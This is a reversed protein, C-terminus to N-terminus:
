SCRNDSFMWYMKESSISFGLKKQLALSRENDCEVQLFPTRGSKVLRDSLFSELAFGVGRRRFEPLVTLLGMSGELHTGIFGAIVGGFYGGFIDGRELHLEIEDRPLIGYNEMVFDAKDPYMLRIDLGIRNEGFLHGDMNAAQYCIMWEIPSFKRAAYDKIFSQHAAFIECPPCEDVLMRGTKEDSVALMYVNGPLEHLLVGDKEAYFIAASGRKVADAMGVYLLPNSSLYELAARRKKETVTGDAETFM